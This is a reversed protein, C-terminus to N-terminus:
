PESTPAVSYGFAAITVRAQDGRLFDLFARAADPERASTLLVAQQDIPAHMDPPAPLILGVERGVMQSRAVFGAQANGTAVFQWAQGVSQGTVVGPRPAPACADLVEMAAVGYPATRPNALALHILELSSLAECITQPSPNPPEPWWLVLEGGAYTFRTGAVALGRQELDAPRKVDAALFVDFPAGAVIQAHHHGTSGSIVVLTHEFAPALAELCPKFNAAVAVRVEAAPAALPLLLVALLWRANKM